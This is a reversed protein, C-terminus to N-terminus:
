KVRLKWGVRIYDPRAELSPHRKVNWTVLQHVSTGWHDAISSLYMGPRVKIYVPATHPPKHQPVPAPDPPPPPPTQADVRPWLLLVARRAAHLQTKYNGGYVTSYNNAERPIGDFASGQVQQAVVWLDTTRWEAAKADMAHFFKGAATPPDMLEAPTGWGNPTTMTTEWQPVTWATGTQQQYSGVSAHDHGLGDSSWPLLDHKIELSAPVNANALVRAGSETLMTMVAITAARRGHKGPYRKKAEHITGKIITRQRATLM